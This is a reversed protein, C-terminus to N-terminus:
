LSRTHFGGMGSSNWYSRLPSIQAMFPSNRRLHRLSTRSAVPRVSASPQGRSKSGCSKRRIYMVSAMRLPSGRVDGLDDGSM